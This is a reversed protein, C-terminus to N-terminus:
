KNKIVQELVWNTRAASVGISPCREEGNLHTMVTEILPQQIHQPMEFEFVEKGAETELEVSTSGFFQFRITGKSGVIEATERVANPEVTFCWLGSGLVGNEHQWSASVIDEAEYLKAQNFVMGGVKVVPGFWYDLLDFQHSGLDFFYGGGSIDPQVRWNKLKHAAVLEPQPSQYLCINILRLDGIAQSQLLERVKEFHPLSRRYYAVLLPVNASECARIMEQCEAFSTAMPKEVYVPKGAAAAKLTYEAHSSPPTAIYIADIEPDAILADADDYWKAVGHRSAYDAALEGNRRMVAELVSGSVKQFAPGSKVECVDGCGIIGWRIPKHNRNM